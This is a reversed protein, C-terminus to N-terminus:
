NTDEKRECCCRLRKNQIVSLFNARDKKLNFLAICYNVTKM